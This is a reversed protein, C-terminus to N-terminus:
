KAFVQALDKVAEVGYQDVLDKVQRVFEVTDGKAAKGTPKAEPEVTKATRSKKGEAKKKEATKYTSFMATSIEIGFESKLYAVGDSPSEKGAALAKRVAEAKTITGALTKPTAEDITTAVEAPAPAAAPKSKKAADAPKKKAM